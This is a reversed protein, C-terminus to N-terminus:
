QRYLGAEDRVYFLVEKRVPAIIWYEGVSGQEYEHFKIGRDRSVSEPSVIEVVLNAPGAILNKEILSLRDPLLVLVDPQRSPLDPVPKMVITEGALADDEANGDAAIVAGRVEDQEM